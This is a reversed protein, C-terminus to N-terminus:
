SKSQAGTADQLDEAAKKAKDGMWGIVDRLTLAARVLGVSEMMEVEEVGTVVLNRMFQARTIGGKAALRDVRALEDDSLRFNVPTTPTDANQTKSM